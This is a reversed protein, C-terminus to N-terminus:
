YRTHERDDHASSRGRDMEREREHSKHVGYACGAGAGVAGHHVLHGAIGGVLAGTVCGASAPAISAFAAFGLVAPVILLKKM